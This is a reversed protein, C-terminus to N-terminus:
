AFSVNSHTQIFSGDFGRFQECVKGSNLYWHLPLYHSFDKGRSLCTVIYTVSFKLKINKPELAMFLNTKILILNKTISERYIVNDVQLQKTKFTRTM